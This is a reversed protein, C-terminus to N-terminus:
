YNKDHIEIFIFNELYLKGTTKNILKTEEPVHSGKEKHIQRCKPSYEVDM